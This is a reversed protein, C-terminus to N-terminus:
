VDQSLPAAYCSGASLHLNVENAQKQESLSLVGPFKDGFSDIKIIFSHHLLDASLKLGRSNGVEDVSVM